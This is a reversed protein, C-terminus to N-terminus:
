LLRNFTQAVLCAKQLYPKVFRTEERKAVPRAKRAARRGRAFQQDRGNIPAHGNLHFGVAGRGVDSERVDSSSGDICMKLGSHSDFRPLHLEIKRVERLQTAFALNHSSEVEAEGDQM